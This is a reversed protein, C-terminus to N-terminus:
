FWGAVHTGHGNDDEGTSYRESLATTRGSLDVHNAECGTDVVYVTAGQGQKPFCKDDFIGDLGEASAVSFGKKQDIRDLGWNAYTVFQKARSATDMDGANKELFGPRALWRGGSGYPLQDRPVAERPDEHPPLGVMTNNYHKKIPELGNEALEGVQYPTLSTISKCTGEVVHTHSLYQPEYCGLAYELRKLVYQVDEKDCDEKLEFLQNYKARDIMRLTDELSHDPDEFIETIAVLAIAAACFAIGWQYRWKMPM